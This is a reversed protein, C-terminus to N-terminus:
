PQLVSRKDICRHDVWVGGVHECRHAHGIDRVLLVPAVVLGLVFAFTAFLFFATRELGPERVSM